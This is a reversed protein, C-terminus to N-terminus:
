TRVIAGRVAEVTAADLETVGHTDSAHAAAKGLVEDTTEGEVVGPCGDFLQACELKYM